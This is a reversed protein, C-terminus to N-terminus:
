SVMEVPKNEGKKISPNNSMVEEYQEQTVEYASLYYPKTIKVQHQTEDDDRDPDSKPSGMQFEGAPIPILVMGLSNVVPDGLALQDPTMLETIASADPPLTPGCGM